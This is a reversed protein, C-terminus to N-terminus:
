SPDSSETQPKRAKSEAWRAGAEWGQLYVWQDAVGFWSYITALVQMDHIRSLTRTDLVLRGTADGEFRLRM